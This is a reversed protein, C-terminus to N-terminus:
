DEDFESNSRESQDVKSDEFSWTGALESIVEERFSQWLWEPSKYLARLAITGMGTMGNGMLLAWSQVDERRGM